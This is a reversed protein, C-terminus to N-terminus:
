PRRAPRMCAPSCCRRSSRRRPVPLRYEIPLSRGHRARDAAAPGPRGGAGGAGDAAAAQARPGDAAAVALRRGDLRVTMDHGAIVGMMLRVGTGSNGFDLDGAPSPAPRRRRPGAGGLSAGVKRVPCGLAQLAKATNLVDEGELLGTIRTRGTALAGFMLARHSISKDGPVRVRGSLAPPEAPPFRRHPRAHSVAKRAEVHAAPRRARRSAAAM